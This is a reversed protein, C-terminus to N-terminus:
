KVRRGKREWETLGQQKLGRVDGGRIEREREKDKFDHDSM